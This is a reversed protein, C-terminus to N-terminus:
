KKIIDVSATSCINATNYAIVTITHKGKALGNTNLLVHYPATIDTSSLIGDVYFEVKQIGLNDKASATLWINGQVSANKTPATIGITPKSKNSPKSPEIIQNPKPQSTFAYDVYAVAQSNDCTIPTHACQVITHNHEIDILNFSNITTPLGTQTDNVIIYYRQATDSNEPILDSLDISFTATQNNGRKSGDFEFDGGQNKLAYSNFITTPHTKSIDSVGASVNIQDRKTQSVAFQGVLKPKYNHDIPIASIVKSGMADAIAVRNIKPGKQVASVSLFADYSIWVFGKNGWGTGWSNAILFAGQEGPDVIGNKNVDIWIDDNYGVITMCHGGKVGNQWVAALEGAHINSNAKPDHKVKDYVWSSIYTGFTLVHGNNLIQKIVNLNQTDGGIGSVIQATKTRHSLASIWDNPTLDWARYNEDYPFNLISVLGNQSFL